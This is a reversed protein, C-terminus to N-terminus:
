EKSNNNTARLRLGSLESAVKERLIDLPYQYEISSQVVLENIKKENVKARNLEFFLARLVRCSRRVYNDIEVKGEAPLDVFMVGLGVPYKEDNYNILRVVKSKVRLRRNDPMIFDLDVESGIPRSARVRVFMGGLSINVANGEEPAFGDRLTVAGHLKVRVYKREKHHM